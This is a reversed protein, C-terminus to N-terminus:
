QGRHKRATRPGVATQGTRKPMQAPVPSNMSAQMPHGTLSRSGKGSLQRHRKCLSGSIASPFTEKPLWVRRATWGDMWGDLYLNYMRDKDSEYKPRHPEEQGLLVPMAPAEKESEEKHRAEERAVKNEWREIEERLPKASYMHWFESPVDPPRKSGKKNRM